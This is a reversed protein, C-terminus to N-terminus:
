PPPPVVHTPVSRRGIPDVIVFDYADGAAIPNPDTWTVEQLGTFPPAIREPPSGSTSRYIELIYPGIADPPAVPLGSVDITYSGDDQEVLFPDPSPAPPDPPILLSEAALSLDSWVSEASAGV